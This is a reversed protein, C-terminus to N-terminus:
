DIHVIHYAGSVVPLQFNYMVFLFGFLQLGVIVKINFAKEKAFLLLM